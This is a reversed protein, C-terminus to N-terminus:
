KDPFQDLAKLDLGYAIAFATLATKEMDNVASKSGFLGSSGGAARAVKTGTIFVSAIFHQYEDPTLKSQLMTKTRDIRARMETANEQAQFSLEEALHGGRIDLAVERHLPDFLGEATAVEEAFSGAEKPDMTGDALAVMLFADLPVHRVLAWEEDSFKARMTQVTSM